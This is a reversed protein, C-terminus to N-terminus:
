SKRVTEILVEELDSNGANRLTWEYVSVDETEITAGSVSPWSAPTVKKPRRFHDVVKAKGNLVKMLFDFAKAKEEITASM